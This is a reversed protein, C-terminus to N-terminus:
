VSRDNSFPAAPPDVPATKGISQARREFATRGRQELEFAGLARERVRRQADATTAHRLVVSRGLQVHFLEDPKVKDITAQVDAPMRPYLDDFAQMAGLEGAINHAAVRELTDSGAPYYEQVWAVWEPEPQWDAMDTGRRQLCALFLKHHRAEDAVQRSLLHFADDESVDGLWAGIFGAAEREYWTQFRLWEVVEPESLPRGAGFSAEAATVLSRREALEDLLSTYFVKPDLATASV